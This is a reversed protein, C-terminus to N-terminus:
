SGVNTDSYTSLFSHLCDHRTVIGKSLESIQLSQQQDMPAPGVDPHALEQSVEKVFVKGKSQNVEPVGEEIAVRCLYNLKRQKKSNLM